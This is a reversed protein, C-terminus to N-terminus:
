TPLYRPLVQKYSKESCTHWVELHGTTYEKEPFIIREPNGSNHNGLGKTQASLKYFTGEDGFEKRLGLKREETTYMEFKRLANQLESLLPRSALM